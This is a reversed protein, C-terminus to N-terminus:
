SGTSGGNTPTDDSRLKSAEIRADRVGRGFMQGLQPLTKPGRWILAVILVVILILFLDVRRITRGPITGASRFLM